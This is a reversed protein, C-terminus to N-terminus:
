KPKTRIPSFIQDLLKMTEYSEELTVLGHRQGNILNEVSDLLASLGPKFLTDRGGLNIDTLGRQGLEQMYLKEIPALVLRKEPTSISLSWNQPTNWYSTYEAQDGSSFSINSTAVMIEKSGQWTSTTVERVEGRALFVLLDVTHIANAFHWNDIVRAPTGIRRAELTDHQDVLQLYRPGVTNTLQSKAYAVSEYFRRNLAVFTLGAAGDAEDLIKKAEDLNHGAPKEVLCTWSFQWVEKLVTYTALESVAVVVLDAATSNYLEKVSVYVPPNGFREAVTKANSLSRSVIGVLTFETRKSFISLYEQAMYGSGIIAVRMNM